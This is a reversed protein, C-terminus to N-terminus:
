AQPIRVQFRSGEGPRSLVTIGGGHATAIAKAISLGIGLGGAKRTSSMDLQQLRTFLRPQDAQDIGVGTDVVELVLENAERDALVRVTGGKPTFKIANELLITLLHLIKHGDVCVECDSPVVTEISLGKKESVPLLSVVADHVLGGLTTYEPAVAFRDALIDTLCLLNRIMLHLRDAGELVHLVSSRQEESLTADDALLSAFGMIFNLPTKLEHSLVSLFQDKYREAQKRATIDRIVSTICCVRGQPDFVPAVTLSVDIARGDKRMRLTEFHEIREGRQAKELLARGEALRDPPMLRTYDSGKLDEDTYGYTTRVAQNWGVIEGHPSFTLVADDTAALVSGLQLLKDEAKRRMLYQDIQAGVDVMMALLDEDPEELHRSFFAMVGLFESGSVIPFAIAGRLGHVHALEHRQFYADQRADHLWIPRRESWVRGPLGQGPEFSMQRSDEAFAQLEPSGRYWSMQYELRAADADLLWLEGYDWELSRCMAEFIADLAAHASPADALQQTVAFRIAHRREARKRNTIDEVMGVFYPFEPESASVTVRGWVMRGDKRLYRKELVFHDREGRKLEEFRDRLAPLEDVHSIDACSTGVLEQEDYGLLAQLAPNVAVLRGTRDIVTMGIASCQFISSFLGGGFPELVSAEAAM